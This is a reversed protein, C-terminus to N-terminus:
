LTHKSTTSPDIEKSCHPCVKRNELWTTVCEPHYVHGCPLQMVDDEMDYEIRCILCQEENTCKSPSTQRRRLSCDAYKFVPLSSIQESSLGTSVTGVLEGLAILREYSLANEVEGENEGEDEDESEQVGDIDALDSDLEGQRFSDGQALALLRNNFAAEEEQMLRWALEEDTQGDGDGQGSPLPPPDNEGRGARGTRGAFVALLAREQEQLIKALALDEDQTSFKVNCLSLSLHLFV